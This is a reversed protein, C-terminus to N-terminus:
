LLWQSEYRANTSKSFWGGDGECVRDWECIGCDHGVFLNCGRGSLEPSAAEGAALVRDHGLVVLGDVEVADEVRLVDAAADGVGAGVLVVLEQGLMLERLDLTTELLDELFPLVVGELDLGADVLVDVSGVLPPQPLDDALVNSALQVSATAPVILDRGVHTQPEPILQIHKLAVQHVEELHDGRTSLAIDLMDHRAVGVQLACLGDSPAVPHEHVAGEERGVQLSEALELSADVLGRKATTRKCAVREVDVTLGDGLLEAEVAQDHVGHGTNGVTVEDDLEHLPTGHQHHM